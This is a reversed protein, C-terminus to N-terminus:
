KERGCGGRGWDSAGRYARRRDIEWLGRTSVMGGDLFHVPNDLVAAMSASKASANDAYHIIEAELTMPPVPAGFELKGHHSLILHQLVLQEPVTCADGGCQNRHRDLLIAGLVVHGMLVGADTVEFSGQWSYSELKGIDHLLSGAVVLDDDAECQAAITRGIAAVECTHRLLGGLAAHHGSISAPCEEFRTRFGPDDFFLALIASLHPSRLGARLSDIRDWWPATEGASPMLDRWDYPERALAVISEVQLQRRDNYCGIQGTVHVLDGKKLEAILAGQSQWFPASPIRGYRNGFTLITHPSSGARPEVQLVLFQGGVGSGVAAHTLDPQDTMDTAM